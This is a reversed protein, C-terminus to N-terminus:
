FEGKYLKLNNLITIDEIFDISFPHAEKFIPNPIIENCSNCRINDFDYIVFVNGRKCHPCIYKKIKIPM